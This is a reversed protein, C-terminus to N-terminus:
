RKKISFVFFKNVGFTAIIIGLSLVVRSINVNYHLTSVLLYFLSNDILLSVLRVIFFKFFQKGNNESSHNSFVFRRNLIYNVFVAFIYSVINAIIYYLGLSELLFFLLLNIGTTVAGWFSYKVFEKINKSRKIRKESTLTSRSM